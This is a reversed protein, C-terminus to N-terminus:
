VGYKRDQEIFLVRTILFPSVFEWTGPTNQKQFGATWLKIRVEQMWKLYETEGNTLDKFNIIEPKEPNGYYIQLTYYKM